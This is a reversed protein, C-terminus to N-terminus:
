ENDGDYKTHYKINKLEFILPEILRSISGVHCDLCYEKDFKHTGLKKWERCHKRHKLIEKKKRNLLSIAKDIGKKFGRESETEV